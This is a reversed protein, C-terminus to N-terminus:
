AGRERATEDRVIRKTYLYSRKIIRFLLPTYLRLALKIKQIVHRNAPRATMCKIAYTKANAQDGKRAYAVALVYWCRFIGSRIIRDYKFDLHMNVREYMEIIGAQQTTLDKMSFVGGQHLRYSAMIENIYGIKGQQASLIHLPWDIIMLGRFWEPLVNVIARRYMTSCTAIWHGTLIDELSSMEKQSDPCHIWPERSGDEHFMRVNHFCTACEPHSELFSVQKQLKQASTWYDDGELIAIYEGKCARLTKAFNEEMGLNTENLLLTIKDPFRNKFDIVIDRTHDTSCDEGIVVEYDFTTEQMLISEIAQAVFPGHNYTIMAVSVKMPM